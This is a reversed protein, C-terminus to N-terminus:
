FTGSVSFVVTRPDGIVSSNAWYRKDGLNNAELRLTLPYDGLSLAYRAGLDFLTYSALRDANLADAYRDSAYGGGAILTLAPLVPLQYEARLKFLVDSVLQPRKGELAPNQKQEEIEANLWTGGGILTLHDSAKGIVTLELGRHVQRGDQVFEASGSTSLEYYQLGKNIEFLAATLLLDGVSAKAGIEYQRSVLPSKVEGANVVPVGNFEDAAIAGQELSEIYSAYTTLFEVPRFVLSATPTVKSKKYGALRADIETRAVGVLMSWQENFAIDDGIVLSDIVDDIFFPEVMNGRDVVPLDPRPVYTPRDLTLGNFVIGTSNREYRADVSTRRQMGVTLKHAIAGTDFKVDAFLYGAADDHRSSVPSGGAPYYNFVTQNYTGDAQIVNNAFVTSRENSNEYWASRLTVADSIDWRLQAGYKTNEYYSEAWPQGWSVTPDLLTPSLRAVGPAFQWGGKGNPEYDRRSGSIQLLLRDTPRWDLAASFFTKRIDVGDVATEGDQGLVNVRYAFRGDRDIPGGFDGHVYYNSGGNNGVTVRNLRELTPRKTVYNVVGGVNGSGYLFGSLGSLIEVREVDETTTSHGLQDIPVGDQYGSSVRFGRMYFTPQDNEYQSRTLQTTPNIRFIQDPSTSQLNEILQRSVVTMSYPTNQLDRGQWAGVASIEDTRYGREPTGDSAHVDSSVRVPPLVAADTAPPRSRLVYSGDPQRVADLDSDTLLAALGADVTYRGSLGASRKGETLTADIVLLIAAQSAFSNLAQDLTGAPVRYDATQQIVAAAGQAHLALPTLFLGSTLLAAAAPVTMRYSM